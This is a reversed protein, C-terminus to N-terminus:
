DKGGEGTIVPSPRASRETLASGCDLRFMNGLFADSAADRFRCLEAVPM